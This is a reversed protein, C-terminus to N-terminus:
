SGIVGGDVRRVAILSPRPLDGDPWRSTPKALGGKEGPHQINIFLTTGDPTFEPGCIEAGVPGVLFRRTIGRAPGATAVAFVADNTELTTPQGDTSIWVNGTADFAVNDPCSMPSVLKPDAGAYFATPDTAPDGGAIFPSWTFKTSAHDGRAEDLEIVHGHPNPARDNVGGDGQKRETNNTMVVYVRQNIPNVQVDEPRDMPTAGVTAAAERANVAIEAPSWSALKGEPVLPIWEGTGDVDFRAAHLTGEDLLKGNAERRHRDYSGHSVYKFVFAFREDDGSYVVVRDAKSLVTTAAEHKFRGLATRKIPTSTPDYPDIEVIWSFRHAENPERAVDFRAQHAEWNRESVEPVIGWALLREKHRGAPLAKANGFYKHTNEEATLVTGWPTRGGACNGFMGHVTRGTPDAATKMSAHGTAPGTIRMPTTGTIRRNFKSGKELRWRGSEDLFIEAVTMGHSAIEVEVQEPTPKGTVYGPFQDLGQSFEHNVCILGRKSSGPTLPFFANYDCNFGFQRAQTAATQKAVDLDPADPFLPEGWRLVVDARYGPPVSVRDASSPPVVSFALGPPPSSSAARAPLMLAM